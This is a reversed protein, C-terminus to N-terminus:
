VVSTLLISLPGYEALLAILLRTIRSKEEPLDKLADGFRGRKLDDVVPMDVRLKTM